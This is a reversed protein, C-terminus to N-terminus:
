RKERPSPRIADGRSEIVFFRDAVRAVVCGDFHAPAVVLQGTRRHTGAVGPLMETCNPRACECRLESVLGSRARNGAGRAESLGLPRSRIRERM